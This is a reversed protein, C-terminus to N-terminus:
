PRRKKAMQCKEKKHGVAEETNKGMKEKSKKAKTIIEKAKRRTGRHKPKKM